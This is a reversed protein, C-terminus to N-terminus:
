VYRCFLFLSFSLSPLDIPYKKSLKHSLEILVLNFSFFPRAFQVPCVDRATM